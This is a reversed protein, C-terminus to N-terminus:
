LLKPLFEPEIIAIFVGFKAVIEFKDHFFNPEPTRTLTPAERDWVGAGFVTKKAPMQRRVILTPRTVTRSNKDMEPSKATASISKM